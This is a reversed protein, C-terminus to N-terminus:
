SGFRGGRVIRAHGGKQLDQLFEAWARKPEAGRLMGVGNAQCRRKRLEGGDRECSKQVVAEVFITEGDREGARPEAIRKAESPTGIGCPAVDHEGILLNERGRQIEERASEIVKAFLEGGTFEFSVKICGIFEVFEQPRELGVTLRKKSKRGDCERTAAISAPSPVM